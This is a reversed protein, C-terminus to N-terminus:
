KMLTEEEGGDEDEGEEYGDEGLIEFVGEPVREPELCRVIGFQKRAMTYFVEEEEVDDNSSNNDNDDDKRSTSNTSLFAAAGLHLYTEGLACHFDVELNTPVNLSELLAQSSKLLSQIQSLSLSSVLRNTNPEESKGNEDEDNGDEDLSLDDDQLELWSQVIILQCQSLSIRAQTKLETGHTDDDDDSDLRAILTRVVKKELLEVLSTILDLNSRPLLSLTQIALDIFNCTEKPPTSAPYSTLANRICESTLEDIREDQIIMLHAHAQSILCKSQLSELQTKVSTPEIAPNESLCEVGVDCRDIAAGFWLLPEEEIQQSGDQGEIDRFDESAVLGLSYLAKAYILHFLPTLVTSTSRSEPEDNATIMSQDARRLMADCEHVTGRLLLLAHHLDGVEIKEEAEKLVAEVEAIPDGDTTTPASVILTPGNDDNVNSELPTHTKQRKDSAESSSPKKLGRPRKRQPATSESPKSVPAM